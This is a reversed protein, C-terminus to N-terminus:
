LIGHELRALDQLLEFHGETECFQLKRMWDALEVGQSAHRKLFVKCGNPIVEVSADEPSAGPCQVKIFRRHEGDCDEDYLVFPFDPSLRKGLDMSGPSDQRAQGASAEEAKLEKELRAEQWSRRHFFGSYHWLLISLVVIGTSLVVSGTSGM